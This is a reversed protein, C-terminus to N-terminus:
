YYLRCTSRDIAVCWSQVSAPGIQRIRFRWTVGGFVDVYKTADPTNVILKSTKEALNIVTTLSDTESYQGTQTNLLDVTQQFSGGNIMRSDSRIELKNPQRVRLDGGEFDSKLQITVPAAFQNPVFFRCVVLEQDDEFAVSTIDGSQVRGLQVIMSIPAATNVPSAVFGRQPTSGGFNGFGAIQGRNNICRAQQLVWVFVSDEDRLENLDQMGNALSYVTAFPGFGNSGLGVIEDFDNISFAQSDLALGSNGIDTYTQLNNSWHMAHTRGNTALSAGVVEGSVNIGYADGSPHNPDLTPLGIPTGGGASRRFPLGFATISTQGSENVGNAYGIPENIFGTNQYGSGVQFIAAVPQISNNLFYGAVLGHSNIASGASSVYGNNGFTSLGTNPDYVFLERPFSGLFGTIKGNSSIGEASGTSTGPVQLTGTIASYMIPKSDSRGVVTGNDNIAFAYSDTDGAIPPVETIIYRIQSFALSCTATAGVSALFKLVLSM